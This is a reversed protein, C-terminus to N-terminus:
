YITAAYKKGADLFSLVETFSRANENTIAGMFWNDKGKAKRAEIIYDGPEADLIKTDDWDVAVDRIFQFADPHAEYNEPLDAAMQLPSYMTVYLALQKTLTTHVRRSTNASYNKLKFIGPTYDMPGGMLRTFPLITEHEPANGNSFANYENGRAAECALWNPYTRQLGTPRVPAHAGLMVRYYAAKEAVRGYQNVM